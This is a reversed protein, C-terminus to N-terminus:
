NCHRITCGHQAPMDAGCTLPLLPYKTYPPNLGRLASRFLLRNSFIRLFFKGRAKLSIFGLCHFKIKNGPERDSWGFLYSRRLRWHCTFAFISVPLDSPSFADNFENPFSLLTVRKFPLQLAVPHLEVVSLLIPVFCFHSVLFFVFSLHKPLLVPLFLSPQVLLSFFLRAIKTFFIWGYTPLLNCHTSRLNLHSLSPCFGHSAQELHFPLHDCCLIPPLVSALDAFLTKVLLFSLLVDPFQRFRYLTYSLLYSSKTFSCIFM